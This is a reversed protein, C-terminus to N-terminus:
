SPIEMGRGGPVGPEDGPPSDITCGARECVFTGLVVTGDYHVAYSGPLFSGSYPDDQKHAFLVPSTRRDGAPVSLIPSEGPPRIPNRVAGDPYRLSVQNWEMRLETGSSNDVQLQVGIFATGWHVDVVKILPGAEPVTSPTTTATTAVSGPFTRVGADRDPSSCGSLLAAIFLLGARPLLRELGPDSRTVGACEGTLSPNGTTM